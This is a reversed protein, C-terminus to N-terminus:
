YLRIVETCYRSKPVLLAEFTESKLCNHLHTCNVHVFGDAQILLLLLYTLTDTDWNPLQLFRGYIDRMAGDGSYPPRHGPARLASNVVPVDVNRASARLSM